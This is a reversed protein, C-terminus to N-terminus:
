SWHKTWGGRLVGQPSGCGKGWIVSAQPGQRTRPRGAPAGPEYHSLLSAHPWVPSLTDQRICVPGCTCSAVLVQRVCVWGSTTPTSTTPELYTTTWVVCSLVPPILQSPFIGSLDGSSGEPLHGATPLPGAEVRPGAGECPLINKYRNKPKNELRQGEKRPYLLRCEQQQLMQCPPPPKLRPGVSGWLGWCGDWTGARARRGARRRGSSSTQCRSSRGSARNPRRASMRPGTSSGCAVRWAQPLSGRPRSPSAPLPGHGFQAPDRPARKGPNPAVLEPEWPWMLTCVQKLPVVAGSKEVM